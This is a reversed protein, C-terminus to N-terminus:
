VAQEPAPVFPFGYYGSSGQVNPFVSSAYFTDGAAPPWPLNQALSFATNHHVDTAANGVVASWVGKLSGSTFFVYGDVFDDIHFNAANNGTVQNNGGATVTFVPAPQTGGPGCAGKFGAAANSSEIVSGPVLQNVVDLYSNVTFTIKAREVKCEGVRGGFLESAGFTDADGPTPMYVTWSRFSAGDFKGLYAQQYPSTAALSQQFVFNNPSWEVQLTDVQLGIQSKVAGRKITAPHFQGWWSWTLSTQWDTLWLANLDEPEGILYLTALTLQHRGALWNQLQATVDQGLGNIVTRLGVISM